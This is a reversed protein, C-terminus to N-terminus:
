VHDLLGVCLDGDFFRKFHDDVPLADGYQHTHGSTFFFEGGTKHDGFAIDALCGVDQQEVV